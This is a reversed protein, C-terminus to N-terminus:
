SDERGLRRLLLGLFQEALEAWVVINLDEEVHKVIGYKLHAPSFFFPGPDEGKQQSSLCLPGGISKRSSSSDQSFCRDNYGAQSSVGWHHGLGLCLGQKFTRATHYVGRWVGQPGMGGDPQISTSDLGNQIGLSGDGKGLGQYKGLGVVGLPVTFTVQM